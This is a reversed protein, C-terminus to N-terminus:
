QAIALAWQRRLEEIGAGNPHVDDHPILDTRGEFAAWLDPGPLIEPYALYLADIAANIPPGEAQVGASDSWPIHPVM